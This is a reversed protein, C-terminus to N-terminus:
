TSHRIFLQYLPINQDNINEGTELATDKDM